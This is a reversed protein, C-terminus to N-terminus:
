DAYAGAGSYKYPLGSNIWGNYTRYGRADAKGQFGELLNLVQYGAEELLVGANHSRNGSRCMMILIV